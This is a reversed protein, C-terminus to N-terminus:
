KKEVATLNFNITVTEAVKKGLVSPISVNFDALKVKFSGKIRLLDGMVRFNKLEPTWKYFAVEIPVKISRKVGKITLSGHVTGKLKKGPKLAGAGSVKDIAFTIKPYKAADLWKSGRLHTDRMDVGTRLTAADVEISGKVSKAPKLLDLMLRGTIKSTTGVITELVADSTFSVRSMGHSHVDFSHDAANATGVYLLLLLLSVIRLRM